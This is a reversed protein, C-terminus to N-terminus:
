IFSVSNNVAEGLIILALSVDDSLCHPIVDIVSGNILETTNGSAERIASAGAFFVFM